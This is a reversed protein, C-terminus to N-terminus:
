RNQPSHEFRPGYLYRFAERLREDDLVGVPM